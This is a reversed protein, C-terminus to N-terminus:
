RGTNISHHHQQRVLWINSFNDKKGHVLLCLIQHHIRGCTNILFPEPFQRQSCRQWGLCLDVLPPHHGILFHLRKSPEEESNPQEKSITEDRPLYAWIHCITFAACIIPKPLRYSIFCFNIFLISSRWLVM